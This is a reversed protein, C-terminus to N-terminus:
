FFVPACMALYRALQVRNLMNDIVVVADCLQLKGDERSMNFDIRRALWPRSM